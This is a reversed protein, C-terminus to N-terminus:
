LGSSEFFQDPSEEVGGGLCDQLHIQAWGGTRMSSGEGSFHMAEQLRLM